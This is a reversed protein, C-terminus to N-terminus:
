TGIPVDPLGARIAQVLDAYPRFGSLILGDKEGSRILLTPFRGIHYYRVLELDARFAERANDGAYDTRFREGDFAPDQLALDDAVQFLIDQRAINKGRLMCAQQALHYYQQGQLESQLGAAKTAICAPYSSAPPDTMWVQYHIPRDTLQAAHMWVPGMQAARTVANMEDSFSKWSPILGGM